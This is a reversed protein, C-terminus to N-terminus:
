YTKNMKLYTMRDVSKVTIERLEAGQLVKLRIPAGAEGEAWLKRYYDAMSTVPKDGVALVIDGPALGAAAAPTDPSIRQVFVRGKVDEPQLGLWPRIPGSHRGNALLDGLIPKLRDIPVFMNGPLPRQGQMADGIFLSGVGLLRGDRSILAAGGFGSIPPSTFIANELLYEWSGVFDRRSVVFAGIAQESGGHAAVLVQERETIGTSDGLRMPAVGLAASARLLGFGTDHDYGVVSAPVSKGAVTTVLISDSEIVLYGITVILGNADIVIGNGDRESGLTRASRADPPVRISLKVISQLAANIDQATAAGISLAAVMALAFALPAFCSPAFRRLLNM